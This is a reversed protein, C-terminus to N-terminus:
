AAAAELLEREARDRIRRELEPRINFNIMLM